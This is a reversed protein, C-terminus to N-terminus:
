EGFNSVGCSKVDNYTVYYILLFKLLDIYSISNEELFFEIFLVVSINYVGNENDVTFM